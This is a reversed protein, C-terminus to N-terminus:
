DRVGLEGLFTELLVHALAHEGREVGDLFGGALLLDVGDAVADAARERRDREGIKRGFLIGADDRGRQEGRLDIEGIGAIELDEDVLLADRLQFRM